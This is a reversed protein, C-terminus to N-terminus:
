APAEPVLLKEHTRLRFAEGLTNRSLARPGTGCNANTSAAPRAARSSTGAYKNM